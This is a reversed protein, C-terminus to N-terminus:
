CARVIAASQRYGCAIDAYRCREKKLNSSALKRTISRFFEDMRRMADRNNPDGTLSRWDLM